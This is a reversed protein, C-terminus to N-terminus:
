RVSGKPNKMLKQFHFLWLVSIIFSNGRCHCKAKQWEENKRSFGKSQANPDLLDTCCKLGMLLHKQLTFDFNFSVLAVRGLVNGTREPLSVGSFQPHQTMKTHCCRTRSWLGCSDTNKFFCNDKYHSVIVAMRVLCVNLEPISAPKLKQHMFVARFIIYTRKGSQENQKECFCVTSAM